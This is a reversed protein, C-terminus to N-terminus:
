CRQNISATVVGIIETDDVIPTIYEVGNSFLSYGNRKVFIRCYFQGEHRILVIDSDAPIRSRDVVLLEGNVIGAAAM